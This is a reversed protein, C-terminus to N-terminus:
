DGHSLPPPSYCISFLNQWGWWMGRSSFFLTNDGCDWSCHMITGATYALLSTEWTGQRLGRAWNDELCHISFLARRKHSIAPPLFGIEWNGSMVLFMCHLLCPPHASPHLYTTENLNKIKWRTRFLIYIKELYVLLLIWRLSFFWYFALAPLPKRFQSLFQLM